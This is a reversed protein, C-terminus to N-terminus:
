AFRQAASRPRQGPCSIPALGEFSSPIAPGVWVHNTFVYGMAELKRVAAIRQKDINSMRGTHRRRLLATSTM